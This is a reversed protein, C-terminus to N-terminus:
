GRKKFNPDTSLYLVKGYPNEVSIKNTEDPLVWLTKFCKPKPISSEGYGDTFYILLADRYHHENIYEIVPTFYTGGRGTVTYKIDKLDKVKYINGIESDCEIITIETPQTKFIHYIENFFYSLLTDSVSGSTDITVVIRVVRNKIRGPLDLRDPQRRNPMQNTSRYGFPITGIANKIHNQWKIKPPMLLKEIADQLFQPITGRDKESLSNISEKILSQVKARQEDKNNGNEWRHVGQNNKENGPMSPFRKDHNASGNPNSQSDQNNSGKKTIGQNGGNSSQPNKEPDSFEDLANYYYEMGQHSTLNKTTELRADECCYADVPIKMGTSSGSYESRVRIDKKVMDNCAAEKAKLLNNHKEENNEPNLDTFKTPYDFALALIDGAVLAEIQQISYKYLYMPNLLMRMPISKLDVDISGNIDFSPEMLMNLLVSGYFKDQWLVIHCQIFNIVQRFDSEIVSKLEKTKTEINEENEKNNFLAIMKEVNDCCNKWVAKIDIRDAM